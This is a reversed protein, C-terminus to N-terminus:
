RVKAVTSPPAGHLRPVGVTQSRGGNRRYPQNTIATHGVRKSARLWETAALDLVSARRDFPSTGRLILGPDVYAMAEAEAMWARAQRKTAHRNNRGDFRNM